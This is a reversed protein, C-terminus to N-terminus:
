EYWRPQIELYSRVIDKFGLHNLLALLVADAEVHPAASCGNADARIQGLRQMAEGHSMTEPFEGHDFDLRM